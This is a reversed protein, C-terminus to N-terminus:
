LKLSSERRKSSRKFNRGFGPIQHSCFTSVKRIAQNNFVYHWAAEAYSNFFLM